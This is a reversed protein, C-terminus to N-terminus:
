APSVSASRGLDLTGVADIGVLEVPHEFADHDVVSAQEVLAQLLPLIEVVEV